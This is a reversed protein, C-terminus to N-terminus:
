PQKEKYQQKNMQEIILTTAETIALVFSKYHEDDIRKQMKELSKWFRKNDIYETILYIMLVFALLLASGFFLIQIYEKM